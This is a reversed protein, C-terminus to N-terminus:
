SQPAPPPTLSFLVLNQGRSRESVQKRRQAVLPSLGPCEGTEEVRGVQGSPHASRMETRRAHWVWLLLCCVRGSSSSSNGCAKAVWGASGTDWPFLCYWSNMKMLLLHFRAFFFSVLSFPTVEKQKTKGSLMGERRLILSVLFLRARLPTFQVWKIWETVWEVFM